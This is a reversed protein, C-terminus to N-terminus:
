LLRESFRRESRGARGDGTLRYSRRSFIRWRTRADVVRAPLGLQEGRVSSHAKRHYGTAAMAETLLRWIRRRGRLGM